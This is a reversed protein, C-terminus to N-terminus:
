QYPNLPAFESIAGSLGSWNWVFFDSANSLVTTDWPSAVHAVWNDVPTGGVVTGQVYIGLMAMMALRGNKIEKLQLEALDGGSWNFPDFIGAPYGVPMGDPLKNGTFLPDQSVSGPNKIDLWRRTEAYGMLILQTVFIAGTPAFYTFEGAEQWSVGAGPWSVGIKAAVDPAIIGAVGLMAFRAHVLEAQRYWSLAEPDKGLSLPDFGFDGAMSGDLWEPAESGPAWAADRAVVSLTTRSSRVTCSSPHALRTGAVTKKSSIGM